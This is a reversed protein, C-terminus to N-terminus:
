LIEIVPPSHGTRRGRFASPHAVDRHDHQQPRGPRHPTRSRRRSRHSQLHRGKGGIRQALITYKGDPLPGFRFRGKRDATAERHIKLGDIRAEAALRKARAPTDDANALSGAIPLCSDVVILVEPASEDPAPRAEASVGMGRTDSQAVVRVPDPSLVQVCFRGQEDTEAASMRFRSTVISGPSKGNVTVACDAVPQSAGDVVRGRVFLGRELQVDDLVFSGDFRPVASKLCFATSRYAAHSFRLYTLDFSTKPLAIRFVGDGDTVVGTEEWHLTEWVSYAIYKGRVAEEIVAGSVPTQGEGLVRGFLLNTDPGGPLLTKRAADRDKEARDTTTVARSPAPENEDPAARATDAIAPIGGPGRTTSFPDVLVVGVALIAVVLLLTLLTTKTQSAMLLGGLFLPAKAAAVGVGPVALKLGALPALPLCWRMRNGGHKRDLQARLKDLGRKSPYMRLVRM